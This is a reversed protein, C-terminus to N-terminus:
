KVKPKPLLGDGDVSPATPVSITRVLRSLTKRRVVGVGHAGGTSSTPADRENLWSRRLKEKDNKEVTWSGMSGRRAKQKENNKDGDYKGSFIRRLRGSTKPEALPSARESAPSRVPPSAANSASASSYSSSSPSSSLPSIPPISLTARLHSPKSDIESECESEASISPFSCSTSLEVEAIPAPHAHIQEQHSHTHTSNVSHRDENDMWSANRSHSRSSRMYVEANSRRIAKESDKMEGVDVKEGEGEDHAFVRRSYVSTTPSAAVSGGFDWSEVTGRTMVSPLRRREMRSALPPLGELVKGVLYSRRKARRFLPMALLETATPRKTPDKELCAAIAEALAGSYTYVGSTRDLTPAADRVTQLLATQPSVLSRPARGQTLALATIGFSWIDASADYARGNIVEPAMYCPTGVFSKRKSIVPRSARLTPKPSVHGHPHSYHHSQNHLHFHHHHQHQHPHHHYSPPPTDETDWLFAAVGLDGLLVTGDDDILLNAPKVDRHMLGNTHLYNLGELAQKLICKVVEEEMGGPWAYRMVDVVSGANMLRMAIYLKHGNMWTGRVRLVNPHKSLSMLQTERQLLRLAHPPLRDLDLVKLACPVPQQTAAPQYQAAYVTSSAGFGIPAGITYDAPDNSYLQWEDKVAGIFKRTM